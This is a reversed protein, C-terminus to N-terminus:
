LFLSVAFVRPYDVRVIWFGIMAAAAVGPGTLYYSIHSDGVIKLTTIAHSWRITGYLNWTTTWAQFNWGICLGSYVSMIWGFVTAVTLMQSHM